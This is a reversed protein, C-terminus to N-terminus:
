PPEEPPHPSPRAVDEIQFSVREEGQWHELRVRGALWLRTRDQLLAEGWVTGAARFAVARVRGGATGYLLCQIHGDGVPRAEAVAADVLMFRPEPHGAGFPALEALTRALEVTVGGVALPGDLWLPPRPVPGPGFTERARARLLALFADRRTHPLAFGAAAAHGGGATLLGARRAALVAAGVDFGEPARASGRLGEGDAAAVFAARGHRELLRAAVIGLVGPHWRPHAAFLVPEDRALQPRVAEEAEELIREEVARREANLRELESALRWAESEERALLCRVALDSGGLRGGANLRPALVFGLHWERHIETIGAREALARLSPRRMRRAVKLGQAVLARNLGVLPVVDAVTGLAVLDLEELLDPEGDAFLGERRLRRQLGVLLLFCVGVAALHGLSGDQDPRNPNVVALAPPLREEAQHHDVVIVELGLERALHLEAFATTGADLVVLLRVGRSRLERLLDPHPGYGHELRDPIRIELPCGFRRLYGALLATATAGDVDYDGIMGVPERTRVARALRDAARELDHLRGPDVLWDRVRPRLVKPVERVEIGRVALTRALVEPLAHRQAIARVREPDAPRLRWPRGSLSTLEATSGSM